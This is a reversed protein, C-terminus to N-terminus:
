YANKQGILALPTRALIKLDMWLSWNDIYYVDAEARERMKDLTDTEGRLGRIQALGTIGPKVKHRNAYNVLRQSYYDNHVLAHPRPGVLSMDGKVVNFLQPLEDLSTRRLFRGVRTVRRDNKTAQQVEHGDQLETMTRFKIVRITRHNYGHRRQVFFVQGPTDLKVAVAIVALLPASVALLLLGVLKDLLNKAIGQWEGIPRKSIDFLAHGAVYSVSPKISAFPFQEPCIQIEVPSRFLV